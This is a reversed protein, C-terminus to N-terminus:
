PSTTVDCCFSGWVNKLQNDSLHTRVVRTRAGVQNHVGTVGICTWGLPGLRAVPGESNGRVNERSYHLETNDVGILLDVLGDKAPRTFECEKLHPWNKKSKGLDEVKYAGTVKKRCTKVVIDKSFQGDVSEITRKEPISQFTEVENNFVHVKVTEFPESLSLVGAVEEGQKSFYTYTALNGRPLVPIARSIQNIRNDQYRKRYSIITIRRVGTMTVCVSYELITVLWVGVVRSSKKRSRGDLSM